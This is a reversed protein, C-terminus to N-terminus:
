KVDSEYYVWKSGKFQLWTFFLIVFFLVWALASAYGMRLSTFAQNYLHLMYLLTADNPGGGTMVFAQAFTQFSGIFGTILTFFLAPTLLPVTVSKFKHWPGAGDVTAAEYYHQPIGQLGALLIVMAGGVGWLSMVVFSPLALAESGLWNVPEGPQGALASLASQFGLFNWDGDPGFIVTNLLGGDPAFIRRWILSAAVLSALSPLYYMARFLPVGRVKQNLLLALSLAFVIGLPVSVLTYAMTVGMSKWFRPDVFLMEHYNGLGRWRAEQIIDWDAFSMLLSLLMPGLTLIVFGFLWPFIFLYASRSERKQRWTLKRNREPWYVYAALIGTLVAAVGAGAMWPFQPLGEEGLLVQLRRDAEQQARAVAERAPTTGSYISSIRGGIISNIEPWLDSTPTMVTYRVAEHTVIRSAPYRQELPTDPGPLWVDSLALEEIAPQAIGARAMAKMAPPGAMWQVLKWAEEPHRTSTFISYGSGGTPFARQGRAFAPAMAIDWEFFGPEGPKVSRRINPVQWIGSQMMAASGNAFMLPATSQVVNTLENQTPMLKMEGTLKEYFEYVKVWGPDDLKVRTPNELDDAYELGMGFAVTDMWFGIWDPVFAWRTVRGRSDKEQLQQMVWLFDKERLEPRIEFDWTWSGDPYPIGAEDFARKNFYILGMPAIDRPLVYVGGDYSHMEVIREYYSEIDFGPTREIFSNLNYIAGRKALAQFHIPDMMAVDPAVGAAYQTLMKQHYLNYDGFNELKVDIGPHAEEFEKVVRDLVRLAEDGDWVTLRLTVRDPDRGPGCGALLGLVVGALVWWILGRRAARWKETM